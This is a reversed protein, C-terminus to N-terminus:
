EIWDPTPILFLFLAFFVFITLTIIRHYAPNRKKVYNMLLLMAVIVLIFEFNFLSKIGFFYHLLFILKKGFFVQYLCFWFAPILVFLYEVDSTKLKKM